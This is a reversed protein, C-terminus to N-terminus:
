QSVDLVGKGTIRGEALDTLARHAGALPYRAGIEPHIVGAVVPDVARLDEGRSRRGECCATPPAAPQPTHTVFTARRAPTDKSVLM